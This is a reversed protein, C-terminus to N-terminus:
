LLSLPLRPWLTLELGAQSAYHFGIEVLFFFTQLTVTGALLEHSPLPHCQSLSASSISPIGPLQPHWSCPVDHTLGLSFDHAAVLLAMPAHKEFEHLDYRM